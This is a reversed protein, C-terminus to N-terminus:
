PLPKRGEVRTGPPESGSGPESGAVAERVRRRPPRTPCTGSSPGAPPTRPTPMSTRSLRASRASATAPARRRNQKLSLGPESGLAALVKDIATEKSKGDEPDRRFGEEQDFLLGWASGVPLDGDRDKFFHLKSYGEHKRELGLVVEAGRLYATSGFLDDMKFGKLGVQSKRRHMLLLLAFGFRDRWADLRRMLDVAHREDNSDGRHLKHAPRRRGPRVGGRRPDGGAPVRRPRGPRALSWRPRAPYDVDTSGDLGAERLRRKITRLGQEADIMLARYRSGKWELFDRGSVAAHVLQLALTTKGEGTQAGLVTRAGRVLLPGVLEASAPPDPLEMLERATIASFPERDPSDSHRAAPESPEYRAVSAAIQGVEAEDLPPRCRDRNVVQLATKIEGQTMGRRRM